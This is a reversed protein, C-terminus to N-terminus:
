RWIYTVNENFSSSASNSSAVKSGVLKGDVYIEGKIGGPGFASFLTSAADYAKVTRSIKKAFPLTVNTLNETGGSENIYNIEINGPTGATVMYKYEITVSKPYTDGGDDKKDKKCSTLTVIMGSILVSFLILRTKMVLTKFKLIKKVAFSPFQFRKIAGRPRM